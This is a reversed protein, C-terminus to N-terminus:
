GSGEKNADAGAAENLIEGLRWCRNQGRHLKGRDSNGSGDRSGGDHGIVIAESALAVQMQGLTVHTLHEAEHLRVVESTVVHPSQTEHGLDLERGVLKAMLRGADSQHLHNLTVDLLIASHHIAPREEVIDDIRDHLLALTDWFWFWCPTGLLPDFLTTKLCAHALILDM